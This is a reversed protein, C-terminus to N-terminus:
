YMNFQQVRVIKHHDPGVVGVINSPFSQYLVVSISVWNCPLSVDVM